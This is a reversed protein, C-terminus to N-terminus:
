WFRKNWAGRLTCSPKFAIAPNIKCGLTQSLRPNRRVFNEIRFRGEPHGGSQGDDPTGCLGELSDQIVYLKTQEDKISSFVGVWAETGWYDASIEKMYRPVSEKTLIERVGEEEEGLQNLYHDEVCATLNEYSTKFDEFDIHHGLEHGLTWIEGAIELGSIGNKNGPEFIALYDGPCMIVFKRGDAEAAFANDELGDKGCSETISEVIEDEDNHSNLFDIADIFEVQHLVALMKAADVPRITRVRQKVMAVLFEKVNKFAPFVHQSEHGVQLKLGAYLSKFYSKAIEKQRVSMKVKPTELSAFPLENPQAGPFKKLVESWAAARLAEARIQVRVDRKQKKQLQPGCVFKYPDNCFDQVTASLVPASFLIILLLASLNKM